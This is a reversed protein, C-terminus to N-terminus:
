YIWDTMVHESLTKLIKNASYDVNKEDTQISKVPMIGVLANTVFVADSELIDELMLSSQIVKINIKEAAGIVQKRMTGPLLGCKLTPTYIMDGRIAFVNTFSGETVENKENRLLAENFGKATSERLVLLNELYNATKHHVLLSTSSKRIKSVCLKFGNNYMEESYRNKRITIELKKNDKSVQCRAVGHELNSEIIEHEIQAEFEVLTMEFPIYLDKSSKSLRNYHLELSQPKKKQFRITEFLGYGYHLGENM